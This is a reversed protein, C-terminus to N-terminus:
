EGAETFPIWFTQGYPETIWEADGALTWGEPAKVVQVHYQAPPGTCVAAGKEDSTVPTCATDTCFNIVAGTVVEGNVAGYCYVTYTCLGTDTGAGTFGDFLDLFEQTSFKAGDEVTLVRGSRDLLVSTPIGLTVFRGLDTGEEHGIPLSLGYEEAFDRLKEDSDEPEVSLALVAVKDARQSWADQLFPFEKQCPPCWTAFLNILILEHDKQAESLTFVSGDITQVSFDSVYIAESAPPVPEATSEEPTPSGCGTLCGLLMLAALILCFRKMM